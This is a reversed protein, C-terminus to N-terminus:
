TEVRSLSRIDEVVLGFDIEAAGQAQLLIQGGEWVQSQNQEAVGLDADLFHSQEGGEQNGVALCCSQEAAGLDAAVLFHSRGVVERAVAVLFHNQGVGEGLVAAFAASSDLFPSCTESAVQRSKEEAAVGEQAVAVTLQYKNTKYNTM